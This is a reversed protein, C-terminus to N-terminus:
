DEKPQLALPDSDVKAESKELKDIASHADEESILGSIFLLKMLIEYVKKMDKASFWDMVQRRSLKYNSNIVDDDSVNERRASLWIIGFADEMNLRSLSEELSNAKSLDVLDLMSLPSLFHKVGKRDEFEIKEQAFIEALSVSM